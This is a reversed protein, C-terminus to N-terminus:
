QGRELRQIRAMAKSVASETLYGLVDDTVSTSYTIKGNKDLVALEYLGDTGGYSFDHSVVSVGFGNEFTMQTGGGGMEPRQGFSLDSFTKLDKM